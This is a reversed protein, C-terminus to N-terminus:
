ANFDAWFIDKVPFYFNRLAAESFNDYFLGFFAAAAHETGHEARIQHYGYFFFGCIFGSSLLYFLFFFLV